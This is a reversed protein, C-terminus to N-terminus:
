PATVVGTGASYGAWAYWETMGLFRSTSRSLRVADPESAAQPEEFVSWFEAPAGLRLSIITNALQM